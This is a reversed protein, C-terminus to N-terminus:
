RIISSVCVFGLVKVLIFYRLASMVTYELRPCTIFQLLLLLLLLVARCQPCQYGSYDDGTENWHTLICGRCYNHGCKLIVAETFYDLCISCSLEKRLDEGAGGATAM